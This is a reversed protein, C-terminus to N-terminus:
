IKWVGASQFMRQIDRAVIEAIAPDQTSIQITKARVSRDSPNIETKERNAPLKGGPKKRREATAKRQQAMIEQALDFQPVAIETKEDPATGSSNGEKVSPIIDQARLAQPKNKIDGEM